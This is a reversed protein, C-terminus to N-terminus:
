WYPVSRLNLGLDAQSWFWVILWMKRQTRKCEERGEKRLAWSSLILLSTHPLPGPQSAPCRPQLRAGDRIQM